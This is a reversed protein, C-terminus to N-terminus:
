HGHNIDCRDHRHNNRHDDDRNDRDRYGNDLRYRDDIEFDFHDECDKRVFQICLEEFQRTLEGIRTTLKELTTELTTVRESLSKHAM